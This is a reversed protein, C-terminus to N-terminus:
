AIVPTGIFKSLTCLVGQMWHTQILNLIHIKEMQSDNM